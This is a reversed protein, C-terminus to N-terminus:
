RATFCHLVDILDDHFGTVYTSGIGYEALTTLSVAFYENILGPVEIRYKPAPYQIEVLTAFAVM